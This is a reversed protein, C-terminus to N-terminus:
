ELEAVRRKLLALRRESEVREKDLAEAVRRDAEEALRREWEVREKDLAEALRRESEAVRRDAEIREEIRAEDVQRRAEKHQFVLLWLDVTIV